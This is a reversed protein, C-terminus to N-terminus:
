RHLPYIIDKEKVWFELGGACAIKTYGNIRKVINGTYENGLVEPKTNKIEDYDIMKYVLTDSNVSIGHLAELQNEMTLESTDGKRVWVKCNIPEGLICSPLKVFIWEGGDELIVSDEVEVITKEPISGILSSERNPLQYTKVERDIFRYKENYEIYMLNVPKLEEKYSELEAQLLKKEEELSKIKSEMQRNINILSIMNNLMFGLFIAIMLLLTALVKEKL